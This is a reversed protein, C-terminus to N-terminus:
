HYNRLHELIKQDITPDEINFNKHFHRWIQQAEPTETNIPIYKDSAQDYKRIDSLEPSGKEIEPAESPAQRSAKLFQGSANYPINYEIQYFNDGISIEKSDLFEYKYDDATGLTADWNEKIVKNLKNNFWDM